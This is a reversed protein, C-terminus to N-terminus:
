IRIISFKYGTKATLIISFTIKSISYEPSTILQGAIPLIVNRFLNIFVNNSYSQVPIELRVNQSSRSFCNSIDSKTFHENFACNENSSFLKYLNTFIM